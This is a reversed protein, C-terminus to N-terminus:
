LLPKGWRAARSALCACRFAGRPLILFHFGLRSADQDAVHAVAVFDKGLPRALVATSCKVGVPREGFGAVISELEAHWEERFALSQAVRAPAGNDPRHYLAQEIAFDPM